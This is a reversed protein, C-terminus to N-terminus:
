ANLGIAVLIITATVAILVGKFVDKSDKVDWGSAAHAEAALKAFRHYAVMATRLAFYASLAANSSISDSRLSDPDEDYASNAADLDAGLAMDLEQGVDETRLDGVPTAASSLEVFATDGDDAAQEQERIIQAADSSARNFDDRTARLSASPEEREPGRERLEVDLSSCDTGAGMEALLKEVIQDLSEDMPDPPTM